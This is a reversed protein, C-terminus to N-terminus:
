VYHASLSYQTLLDIKFFQQYAKSVDLISMYNQGQLKFIYEHKRFEVSSAVFRLTHECM